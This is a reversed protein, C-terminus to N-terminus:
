ILATVAGQMLDTCTDVICVTLMPQMTILPCSMVLMVLRNREHPIGYLPIRIYMSLTKCNIFLLLKGEDVWDGGLHFAM